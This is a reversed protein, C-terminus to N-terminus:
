QINTNILVMKESDIFYWKRTAFKSFQKVFKCDRVNGNKYSTWSNKLFKFTTEKPKGIIFFM